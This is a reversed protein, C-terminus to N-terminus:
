EAASHPAPPWGKLLIQGTVVRPTVKLNRVKLMSQAAEFEDRKIIAPAAVIVYESVPKAKRMGEDRRNFTLEGIYDRNTLIGNLPGVGFRAGRKKREGMANLGKVIEKRGRPGCRGDLEGREFPDIETIPPPTM